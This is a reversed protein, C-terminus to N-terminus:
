SGGNGIGGFLRPLFNRCVHRERLPFTPEPLIGSEPVAETQFRAPQAMASMSPATM